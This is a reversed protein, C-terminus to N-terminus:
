ASPRRPPSGRRHTSGRARCPSRAPSAWRPQRAGSQSTTGPNNGPKVSPSPPSRGRNGAGRNCDGALEFASRSSALTAPETNFFVASTTAPGPAPDFSFFASSSPNWSHKPLLRTRMSIQRKPRVMTKRPLAKFHRLHLTLEIYLQRGPRMALLILGCVSRGHCRCGGCGIWRRWETGQRRM